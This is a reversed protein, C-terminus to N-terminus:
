VQLVTCNRLGGMVEDGKPGFIRRLVRNKFVRLRYKVHSLKTSFNHVKWRFLNRVQPVRITLNSNIIWVVLNIEAIVTAARHLAHITKAARVSPNNASIGSLAHIDIHANIRHKHQGTHLYRGHSQSILLEVAQTFIIVSSLFRGLGLLPSYLWLHIFSNLKVETQKWRVKICIVYTYSKMKAKYSRHVMYSFFSKLHGSSFIKRCIEAM